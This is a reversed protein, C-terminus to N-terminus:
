CVSRQITLWVVIVPEKALSIVAKLRPAINLFNIDTHRLERKGTQSHLGSFHICRLSQMSLKLMCLRRFSTNNESYRYVRAQWNCESM